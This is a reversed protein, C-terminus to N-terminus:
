TLHRIAVKEGWKGKLYEAVLRRHCHHPQHESCLLCGGKVLSQAVSEEIRRQAMLDLFQKEYVAWDGGNKKYADLM